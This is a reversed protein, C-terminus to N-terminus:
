DRRDHIKGDEGVYLEVRGCAKAAEALTEGHPEPWHGGAFGRGPVCRTLWFDHGAIGVRSVGGFGPPGNECLISEMNAALFERCDKQMRELTGPAIDTGTCNHYLSRGNDDVSYWLAAIVYHRTFDSVDSRTVNENATETM